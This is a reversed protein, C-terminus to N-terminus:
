YTGVSIREKDTKFICLYRSDLSTVSLCVTLLETETVHAHKRELQSYHLVVGPSM